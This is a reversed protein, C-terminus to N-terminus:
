PRPANKRRDLGDNIEEIGAEVAADYSHLLREAIVKPRGTGIQPYIIWGM